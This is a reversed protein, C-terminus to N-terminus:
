STNSGVDSVGFVFRPLSSCSWSFGTNWNQSSPAALMVFWIGGVVLLGAIICGIWYLANGLAEM